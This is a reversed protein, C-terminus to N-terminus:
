LTKEMKLGDECAYYSPLVKKPVFGLKEYLAIARHNSCRVELYIRSKQREKAQKIAELCLSKGLGQGQFALAVGLSYIRLSNTHELLLLYGAIQGKYFFTFLRNSFRLHYLFIRRSFRGEQPTFLSNEIACLTKIDDITTPQLM